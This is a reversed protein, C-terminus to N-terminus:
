DLDIIIGFLVICHSVCFQTLSCCVSTIYFVHITFVDCVVTVGVCGYNCVCVVMSNCLCDSQNLLEFDM